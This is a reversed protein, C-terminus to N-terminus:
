SGLSTIEAQERKKKAAKTEHKPAKMCMDSATKRVAAWKANQKKAWESHKHAESKTEAESMKRGTVPDIGKKIASWMEATGGEAIKVFGETFSM